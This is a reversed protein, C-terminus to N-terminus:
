TAPVVEPVAFRLELIQETAKEWIMDFGVYKCVETAKRDNSVELHVNHLAGEVIERLLHVGPETGSLGCRSALPRLNKVGILVKYETGVVVGDASEDRVQAGSAFVVAVRKATQFIDDVIRTPAEDKTGDYQEVRDFLGDEDATEIASVIAEECLAVISGDNAM